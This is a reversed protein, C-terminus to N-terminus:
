PIEEESPAIMAEIEDIKSQIASEGPNTELALQYAALAKAQYTAIEENLAALQVSAEDDAESAPEAISQADLADTLKREYFTGLVYSFYRDDSTGEAQIEELLAIAGDLDDRQKVIADLLPDNVTIQAAGYASEYWILAAAYSKEGKLDAEVQDVVNGLEALSADERDTLLIIHYGYGSEVIGSLEGVQLSFAAEEFTAVMAGRGFWSLDGGNVASGTDTSHEQALAAFDAGAELQSLLDEAEELTDVLIHSARVREETDYNARNAIFYENLEEDSIEIPGAVAEQVAMALMQNAIYERVDDKFSELTRGQQALYLELDAETWGQGALFDGYQSDLEAQVEDDTIVIGRSEAEQQTLIRQVIQMLSEAELGLEFMRGDAGSLLASIDLGFQAYTQAYQNLLASKANEFDDQYAPDGNVYAIVQQDTDTAAVSPTEVAPTEIAPTTPEEPETTTTSTTPVPDTTEPRNTCGTFVLGLILVFLVFVIFRLRM